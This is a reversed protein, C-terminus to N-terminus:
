DGTLKIHGTLYRLRAEEKPALDGDRQLAFLDVVEARLRNLTADDTEGERQENAIFEGLPDFRMHEPIEIEAPGEVYRDVFTEVPVEVVREVIVERDVYEVRAKRERKPLTKWWLLRDHGWEARTRGAALYEALSPPTRTEM